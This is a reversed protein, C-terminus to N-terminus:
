WGYDEGLFRFLKENHPKFYSDLFRRVEVLDESKKIGVNMPKLDDAFFTPDVGVFDFVVKLAVEPQSFLLESNIILINELDFYKLYAQLQEYYKGRALYSYRGFEAKHYQGELLISELRQEESQLAQMLPLTETGMKVEHYYHSIARDTPNRLIVILKADPARNHIREAVLPHFLYLPSAEFVKQHEGVNKGLPFHSRYWAEGKAFNDTEGTNGGDFYHVEKKFSPVLQPHLGMYWFLSTTGAKQAGIILVEPFVRYSWTARRYLTKVPRYLSLIGRKLGTELSVKSIGVGM